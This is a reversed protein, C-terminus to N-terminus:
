ESSQEINCTTAHLEAPSKSDNRFQAMAYYGKISGIEILNNKSFLIFSGATVTNANANEGTLEVNVVTTSGGDVISNIEGILEPTSSVSFGGLNATSVFYATDGVKCSINIPSNFTLNISAM